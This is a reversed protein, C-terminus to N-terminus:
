SRRAIGQEISYESIETRLAKCNEEIRGGGGEGFLWGSIRLVTDLALLTCAIAVDSKVNYLAELRQGAEIGRREFPTTHHIADRFHKMRILSDFPESDGSFRGQSALRVIKDIRLKLSDKKERNKAFDLFEQDCPFRGLRQLHLSTFFLGSSFSEALSFAASVMSRSVFKERRILPAVDRRRSKLNEDTVRLTHIAERVEKLQYFGAVLDEIFHHEPFEFQMGYTSIHLDAYFPVIAKVADKLPFFRKEFEDIRLNLGIGPVIADCLRSLDDYDCRVFNEQIFKETESILERYGRGIQSSASRAVRRNIIKVAQERESEFARWSDIHGLM